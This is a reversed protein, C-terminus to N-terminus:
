ALVADLLSAIDAHCRGNYIFSDPTVEITEDATEVASIANRALAKVLMNYRIGEGKVAIERIQPVTVGFLGTSEDFRVGDRQFYRALSGDLALDEPTGTTVGLTRDILWVMDATILALELDHTSMFITKGYKHSLSLLLQMLEVKSPYDLFATPEDLFIVPTQQALAKAIMVKQREGDSLTDVLRGALQSIGVLSMAEDVVADDEASLRGWFGTYPSRGLGVLERASMNALSVRDTLVVGTLKALETESYEGIAKGMFTIQGDLPMIFASLTKLLTSKGAGNPGLLCTLEGSRLSANIDRTVVKRDHRSSYGTTLNRIDITVDHTM